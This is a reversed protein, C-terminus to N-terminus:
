VRGVFRLIIYGGLSNYTGSGSVTKYLTAGNRIYVNNPTGGTAMLENIGTIGATTAGADRTWAGTWNTILRRYVGAVSASDYCYFYVGDSFVNTVRNRMSNSGTNGTADFRAGNAVTGASNYSFIAVYDRAPSFNDADTVLIIRAGYHVNNSVSWGSNTTTVAITNGSAAVWGNHVRHLEYFRLANIGISMVGHNTVTLNSILISHFTPNGATEQIFYVRGDYYTLTNVRRQTAPGSYVTTWSGSSFSQRAQIYCLEGAYVGGWSVFYHGDAYIFKNITNNIIVGTDTWTLGDPSTFFTNNRSLVFEDNGWIIFNITGSGVTITTWTAGGDLSTSIDGSSGTIIIENLTISAGGQQSYVGFM